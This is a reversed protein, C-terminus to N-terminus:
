RSQEDATEKVFQAISKNDERCEMYALDLLEEDEPLILGANAFEKKVIASWEEFPMEQFM